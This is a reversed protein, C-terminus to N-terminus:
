KAASARKPYHRSLDEDIQIPRGWRDYTPVFGRKIRDFQASGPTIGLQEAVASWGQEHDREWLEVVHRCPRGLVEAAACAYYIDGPAWREDELLTEVLNRPAGYYRVMEDIFSQRYRTGYRNVDELQSDVWPDGSRPNWDFRFDQANAAGTGALTAFAAAMAFVRSRLKVAIPPQMSM